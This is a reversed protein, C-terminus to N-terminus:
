RIIKYGDYKGVQARLRFVAEDNETYLPLIENGAFTQLAKANKVYVLIDSDYTNNDVYPYIVFTDNDYTFISIQGKADIHIGNVDFEKRMRKLVNEPFYKIDSFAEPVVLTYLKGDGYTDVAFLTCAEEECTAKCIAGWTANNRFEM